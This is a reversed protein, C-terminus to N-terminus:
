IQNLTRKKAMLKGYLGSEVLGDKLNFYIYFNMKKKKCKRKHNKKDNVSINGMDCSCACHGIADRILDLM